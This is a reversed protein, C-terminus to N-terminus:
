IKNEFVLMVFSAIYAIEKTVDSLQSGIHGGSSIMLYSRNNYEKLKDYFKLAHGPHVRDDHIRSYILAPPYKKNEIKNLPSYKRLYRMDEPNDPDGYEGVWYKGALLKNFVTLDIVPNGIIAGNLEDPMDTFTYASLLGGNSVGYCIVNYKENKLKKIISKFSNYVNIKNEKMGFKHWEEGYEGGGPLNCVAVNVGNNILFVFLSNYSPTVSINFGGYGYVLINDSKNNSKLVFYHIKKNNYEIFNESYKIESVINKGINELNGNKYKYISYSIGFSSLIILANEMDSDSAIIGYPIDMTFEKIKKGSFDYLVPEIKADNLHLVLFGDHVLMADEVPTDFVIKNENYEITGYDIKNLIYLTENKYGLIKVENSYNKFIKWSEPNKIDGAYVTSVNDYVVNIIIKNGYVDGLISTGPNTGDGFVVNGNLMIKETDNERNEKIIYFTGDFFIIDNIYGEEKYIIKDDYIIKLIGMDSGTTEFFAIKKNIKDFNVWRIINQTSYIVEEDFIIKYLGNDQALYLTDGDLIKAMYIRRAYVYDKVDSKIKNYEENIANNFKGTENKMYNKINEDINNFNLSDM